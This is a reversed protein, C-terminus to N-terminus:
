KEQEKGIHKYFNDICKLVEETNQPSVSHFEIKIGKIFGENYAREKQKILYEENFWNNGDKDEKIIATM